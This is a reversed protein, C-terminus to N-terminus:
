LLFSPCGVAEPHGNAAAKMLANRGFTNLHNWVAGMELLVKIAASDGSGAAKTLCTEDNDACFDVPAGNSILWLVETFNYSNIALKMKRTVDPNVSGKRLRKM